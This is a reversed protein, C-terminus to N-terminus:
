AIDAGLVKRVGAGLSEVGARHAVRLPAIDSGSESQRRPDYRYAQLLWSRQGNRQTVTASRFRRALDEGTLGPDDFGHATRVRQTEEDSSRRLFEPAERISVGTPGSLTLMEVILTGLEAPTAAAGLERYPRIGVFGGYGRFTGEPNLVFAGARRCRRIM